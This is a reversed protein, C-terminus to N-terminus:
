SKLAKQLWKLFLRWHIESIQSKIPKPDIYFIPTERPTFDILGAAPYVQLSTGIVAFYDASEALTIAEDLAPVEEGVL